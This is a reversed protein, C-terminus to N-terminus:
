QSPQESSSGAKRGLLELVEKCVEKPIQKGRLGQMAMHWACVDKHTSWQSFQCQKCCYWPGKCPYFKCASDELCNCCLALMTLFAVHCAVHVHVCFFISSGHPAILLHIVQADVSPRAGLGLARGMPGAWPGPGYAQSKSFPQFLQRFPKLILSFRHFDTLISVPPGLSDLFM